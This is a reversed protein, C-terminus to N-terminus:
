EGAEDEGVCKAKTDNGARADVSFATLDFSLNDSRVGAPGTMDRAEDPLTGQWAINGDIWATLMDGSIEARLTHESGDDLTPYQSGRFTYLPKLKQYGNAGCEKAVRQGPNRKVSVEVKPRPDLRWMVYVLNCGNEARLKLGLQRRQQGSSLARVTESAGHVVVKLEAADGAKAPAVARFTPADIATPKELAGIVDAKANDLTSKVAGLKGMTVCLSAPKIDELAVAPQIDQAITRARQTRVRAASPDHNPKDAGAVGGDCGLAALAVILTTRFWYVANLRLVLLAWEVRSSVGCATRM